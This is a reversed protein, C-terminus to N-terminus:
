TRAHLLTKIREANEIRAAHVRSNLGHLGIEGEVLKGIRIDRFGVCDQPSTDVATEARRCARGVRQEAVLEITWASTDVLDLIHEFAIDRRWHLCDFVQITTEGAKRTHCSTWGAHVVHMQNIM